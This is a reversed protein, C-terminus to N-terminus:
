WQGRYPEPVPPSSRSPRERTTGPGEPLVSPRELGVDIFISEDSNREVTTLTTLGGVELTPDAPTVPKVLRLSEAQPGFIATYDGALTPPLVALVMDRYTAPVTEAMKKAAAENAEPTEGRALLVIAFSAYVMKADDALEFHDIATLVDACFQDYQKADLTSLQAALPAKLATVFPPLMRYPVHTLIQALEDVRAAPAADLFARTAGVLQSIRKDPAIPMKAIAAAVEGAFPAVGGAEMGAVLSAIKSPDAAAAGIRENARGAGATLVAVILIASFWTTTNKM